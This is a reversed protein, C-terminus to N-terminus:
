SLNLFDQPNMPMDQYSVSFHIHPGLASEALATTGVAGITQGLTVSDGVAVCPDAQLGSYTTEYGGLHRLVLTTGMLDDEKISVVTGDAAASVPEGETGAYDVGNHVRWDRTTENYALNEMAYLTTVNGSLPAATKLQKPATEEPISAQPASPKPAQETGPPDTALAEVAQSETTSVPASQSQELLAPQEPEEKRTTRTVYSTIGIAAACLILAIYYGKGGKGGSQNNRM